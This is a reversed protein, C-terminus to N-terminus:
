HDNKNKLADEPMIASFLFLLIVTLITQLYLLRFFPQNLLFLIITTIILLFIVICLKRFFPHKKCRQFIINKSNYKNQISYNIFILICATMFITTYNIIEPLPEEWEFFIIPCLTLAVLFNILRYLIEEKKMM